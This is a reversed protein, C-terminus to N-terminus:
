GLQAATGGVGSFSTSTEYQSSQKRVNDADVKPSLCKRLSSLSNIWVKFETIDEDNHLAFLASRRDGKGYSKKCVDVFLELVEEHTM